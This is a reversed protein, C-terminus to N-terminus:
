KFENDYSVNFSLNFKDQIRGYLYDFSTNWFPLIELNNLGYNFSRGGMYIYNGYVQSYDTQRNDYRSKIKLTQKIAPKFILESSLIPFSETQNKLSFYDKYTHKIASVGVINNWKL